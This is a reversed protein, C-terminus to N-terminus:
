YDITISWSRLTGRRRRRTDIVEITWLGLSQTGDFVTVVNDGTYNYLQIPPDNPNPGYLYVELDSSRRHSIDLNVTMSSILHDDVLIDSSRGNPNNDPISLPTDLSEYTETGGAEGALPLGRLNLSFEEIIGDNGSKMDKVWLIWRGNAPKGYFPEWYTNPFRVANILPVSGDLWTTNLDDELMVDVRGSGSLMGYGPAIFQGRIEQEVGNEDTYFHVLRMRLDNWNQHTVDFSLTIDTVLLDLDSITITSETIRKKESGVPSEITLPLDTADFDHSVAEHDRRDAWVTNRELSTQTMGGLIFIRPFEQYESHTDVAPEPSFVLSEHSMSRHWPADGYASAETWDLGNSSYWVDDMKSTPDTPHYDDDVLSVNGGIIWIRDDFVVTSHERRPGLPMTSTVETWNNGDNTKWVDALVGASNGDDGRGGMVYMEGGLVASSFGDRGSWPADDEQIWPRETSVGFM